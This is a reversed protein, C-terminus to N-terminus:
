NFYYVVFVGEDKVYRAMFGKKRLDAARKKANEEVLFVFQKKYWKNGFKRREPIEKRKKKPKEEWFWPKSRVM